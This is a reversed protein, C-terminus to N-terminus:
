AVGSALGALDDLGYDTAIASANAGIQQDLLSLLQMPGDFFQMPADLGGAGHGVIADLLNDVTSDSLASELVV